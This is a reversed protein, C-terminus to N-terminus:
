CADRSNREAAGSEEQLPGHVNQDHIIVDLQARQERPEELLVPVGDIGRCVGQLGEVDELAVRHAEDDAVVPHGVHVADLEGLHELGIGAVLAGGDDEHRAVGVAVHVVLAQALAHGHRQLLGQVEILKEVEHTEGLLGGGVRATREGV